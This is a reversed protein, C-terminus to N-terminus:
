EKVKLIDWNERETEHQILYWFEYPNYYTLCRFILAKLEVLNNKYVLGLDHLEYDLDPNKTTIYEFEMDRRIDDIIIVRNEKKYKEIKNQLIDLFYTEGYKNKLYKSINFFTTRLKFSRSFKDNYKIYSYSLIKSITLRDEIDLNDYKQEFIIERLPEALSLIVSNSYYFAFKTALTSKGMLMGGKILKLM